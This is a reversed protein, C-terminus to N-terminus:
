GSYTRQAVSLGHAVFYFTPPDRLLGASTGLRQKDCAPARWRWRGVRAGRLSATTTTSGTGSPWGGRHHRRDAEDGCRAERTPIRNWRRSSASATCKLEERLPMPAPPRQQGGRDLLRSGASRRSGLFSPWCRALEDRRDPYLQDLAAGARAHLDRRRSRLLLKCAYRAPM